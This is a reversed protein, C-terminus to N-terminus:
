ENTNGGKLTLAYQILNYLEKVCFVILGVTLLNRILTLINSPIYTNITEEFDIQLDDTLVVEDM